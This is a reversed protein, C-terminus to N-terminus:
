AISRQDLDKIKYSLSYYTVSVLLYGLVGGIVSAVTTVLAFRWAKQPQSLAMPALMVDPPIPFFM